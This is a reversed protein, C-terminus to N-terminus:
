AVDSSWVLSFYDEAYLPLVSVGSAMDRLPVALLHELRSQDKSDPGLVIDVSPPDDGGNAAKKLASKRIAKLLTSRSDSDSQPFRYGVFVIRSAGRLARRAETWLPLLLESCLRRKTPGPVGLIVESEKDCNVAHEDRLYVQEGPAIRGWNISGHLKYVPAADANRADEIQDDVSRDRRGPVIVQLSGGDAALLEPTTDYNFTIVTHQRRLKMAWAHYPSWRETGTDATRLFLSCDAALARRAGRVVTAMDLPSVRVRKTEGPPLYSLGKMLLPRLIRCSNSNESALATEAIDLFEEAHAWLKREIGAACVIRAKYMETAHVANSYNEKLAWMPRFALLEPLLLGGLARVAGAGLVFVVKEDPYILV